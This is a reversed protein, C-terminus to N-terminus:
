QARQLSECRADGMVSGIALTWRSELPASQWVSYDVPCEFTKSRDDASQFHLVYGEYRGAERECGVQMTNACALRVDPWHPADRLSEGEATVSRTGVWRNILYQCYDAYVPEERYRTQCQREQRFTGDGNDIRVTQCVEGDPIQNTHHVRRSRSINYAGGPVSDCWAGDQVPGYEEIRIERAWSHGTVMVSTDSTALLSFLVGGCVAVLLLVIVLPQWSPRQAQRAQPRVGVRTMEAEYKEKIVDRSGSSAFKQGEARAEAALRSARAADTLPAGCTGCFEASGANLADCSPCTVDAGVYVHDEVAIAEDEAPYYRSDPDQAAGCNPCFRHTIGLLRTTGCYQCDWLMEYTGADYVRRDGEVRVLEPEEQRAQNAQKGLRELLDDGTRQSSTATQGGSAAGSLRELEDVAALLQPVEPLDLTELLARAEAFRGENLLAQVAQLQNQSM